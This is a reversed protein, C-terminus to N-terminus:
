QLSYFVVRMKFTRFWRTVLLFTSVLPARDTFRTLKTSLFILCRPLNELLKQLLWKKWTSQMIFAPRGLAVKVEVAQLKHSGKHCLVARSSRASM